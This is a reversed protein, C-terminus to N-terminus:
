ENTKELEIDTKENVLSDTLRLWEIYSLHLLVAYNNQAYRNSELTNVASILNNLDTKGNRYNKEEEKVIAEALKIKEGALGIMEKQFAMERLLIRLDRELLLLKNGSSVINKELNLEKIKYSAAGQTRPFPLKIDIGARIDHQTNPYFLRDNGSVSCTAYLTASPLLDDMAIAKNIRNVAALRDLIGSTRSEEIFTETKKDYESIDIDLTRWEPRFGAPGRMKGMAEAVRITKEEYDQEAKMLAERKSLVQLRSKNVDNTSAVKFSFKEEVNKLLTRSDDLSQRANLVNGYGSYWQYYLALLAACYDEYAEVIQYRAIEREIGAIEKKMTNTKGFANKVIAQEVGLTVNSSYQAMPSVSPSLKYSLSLGTASEPFLKSLSSDIIFGHTMDEEYQLSYGGKLAVIWDSYPINLIENYVLSLEDILIEEFHSNGRVAEIFADLTVVTSATEGSSAEQASLTGTCFLSTFLFLIRLYHGTM